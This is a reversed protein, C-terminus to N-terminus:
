GNQRKYAWSHPNSMEEQRLRIARETDEQDTLFRAIRKALEEAEAPTFLKAIERRLDAEECPLSIGRGAADRILYADVTGTPGRHPRIRLPFKLSM